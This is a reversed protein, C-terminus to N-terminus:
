ARSVTFVFRRAERDWVMDVRYPQGGAYVQETFTGQDDLRGIWDPARSLLPHGLGEDQLEPFTERAALNLDVIQGTPDVVIRPADDIPSGDDPDGRAGQTAPTDAM